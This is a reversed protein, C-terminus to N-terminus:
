QSIFAILSFHRLKGLLRYLPSCLHNLKKSDCIRLSSSILFNFAAGPDLAEDFSLSMGSGGFFAGREDSSSSSSSSSSLLAAALVAM